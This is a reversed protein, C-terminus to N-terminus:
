LFTFPFIKRIYFDVIASLLNQCVTFGRKESLIFWLSAIFKISLSTVKDLSSSIASVNLLYKQLMALFMDSGSLGEILSGEASSKVSGTIGSQKYLLILLGLNSWSIYKAWLKDWAGEFMLIKM